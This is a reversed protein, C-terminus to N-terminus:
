SFCLLNYGGRTYDYIYATIEKTHNDINRNAGEIADPLSESYTNGPNIFVEIGYDVNAAIFSYTYGSISTTYEVTAPVAVDYSYDYNYDSIIVETNDGVDYDPEASYSLGILFIGLALFLIRKM